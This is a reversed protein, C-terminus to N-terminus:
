SCGAGLDPSAPSGDSRVALAGAQTEILVIRETSALIRRPSAPLRIVREVTPGNPDIVYVHGVDLVLHALGAAVFLRGGTRWMAVVPERTLVRGRGSQPHDYVGGGFEGGNFAVLWGSRTPAIAVVEGRMEEVPIRARFERAAAAGVDAFQLHEIGDTPWRISGVPDTELRRDRTSTCGGPQDDGAYRLGGFYLYEEGNDGRPPPYDSGDGAVNPRAFVGGAIMNLAREANNRVGRHWHARAVNALLPRASVARIRGLSETANYALLWDDDFQPALAILSAAASADGIRGLALAADARLDPDHEAQLYRVIAAGSAQAAEGYREIQGILRRVEWRGEESQAAEPRLSALRRQLPELAAPHRLQALRDVAHDRAERSQARSLAVLEGLAWAPL